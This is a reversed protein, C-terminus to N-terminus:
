NLLIQNPLPKTCNKCVMIDITKENENSEDNQFSMLGHKDANLIASFYGRLIFRETGNTENKQREQKLPKKTISLAM